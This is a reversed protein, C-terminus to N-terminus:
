AGGLSAVLARVEPGDRDRARHVLDLRVSWSGIAPLAIRTVRADGPVATRTVFAVHGHDRALALATAADGCLRIRWDAIGARRVRGLFTEWGDGWANVALLWDTLAPLTPRRVRALPHEPSAVGIVPDPPLPVRVLGRARPGPIAFGVDAGGDAVLAVVDESHADRVAVRRPLDRM